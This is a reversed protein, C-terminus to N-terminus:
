PGVRTIVPLAQQGAVLGAGPLYARLSLRMRNQGEPPAPLWNARAAPDTPEARSITLDISGDTNRILGATRDGVAYRNIPNNAFFSRGDNEWQYMTISWFAKADIGSAPIRVRYIASPDLSQGKSDQDTGLYLAEEVPLAALGGLAVAARLLYDGNYLGITDKPYRWGQVRHHEFGDGRLDRSLRGFHASWGQAAAKVEADKLDGGLGLPRWQRMLGQEAAPVGNRALAHNVVALYNGPDTPLGQAPKPAPRARERQAAAHASASQPQLLDNSEPPANLARVQLADQLPHVAKADINDRVEIRVLMWIDPTPLRLARMGAPPQAPDSALAVWLTLDGEAANRSGVVAANHTFADLFQLSWYRGAIRPVRVTVPGDTLDLWASSYLTDNNPTTVSRSTHDALTRRHAIRNAKGQLPSLPHSMALHRTRAMEYIPFSYIFADTYHAADAM